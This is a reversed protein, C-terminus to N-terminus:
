QLRFTASVSATVEQESPQISSVAEEAVTSAGAGSSSTEDTSVSKTYVNWPYYGFDSADISVLKGSTKGFGEAVADAKTQADEAALKLAQAKYKNQSAQTLEFNIYSIGAGANTGADIVSTLEKLQDTSLEIKVSRSAIYGDQKQKGDEWYINQYINYSDTTLNKEEFGLSTIEDKLKDFIVTNADGAESSTDGKTEIDFYVTILDPTAKVTSVGEVTVTNASTRLPNFVLIAAIAIVLIVGAIISTVIIPTHEKNM